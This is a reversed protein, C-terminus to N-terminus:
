GTPTVKVVEVIKEYQKCYTSYKLLVKDGVKVNLEDMAM